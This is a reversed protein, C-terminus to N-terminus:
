RDGGWSVRQKQLSELHQFDATIVVIAAGDILGTLRVETGGPVRSAPRASLGQPTVQWATWGTGFGWRAPVFLKVERDASAVPVVKTPIPGDQLVVVTGTKAPRGDESKASLSKDQGAAPVTTGAAILLAIGLHARSFM